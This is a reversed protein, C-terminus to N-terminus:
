ICSSSKTTRLKMLTSLGYDPHRFRLTILTGKKVNKSLKIKFVPKTLNAPAIELSNAATPTIEVDAIPLQKRTDFGARHRGHHDV